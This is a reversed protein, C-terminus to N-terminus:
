HETGHVGEAKLCEILEHIVCLQLRYSIVGININRGVPLLASIHPKATM